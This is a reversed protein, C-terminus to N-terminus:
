WENGPYARQLFQMDSLIFGLHESHKGTRGGTQMWQEEPITLTAENFCDEVRVKWEALLGSNLCAIGKETLEVEIKDDEFL